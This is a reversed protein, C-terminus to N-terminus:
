RFSQEQSGLKVLIRELKASLVGESFSPVSLMQEDVIEEESFVAAKSHTARWRVFMTASVTDGTWLVRHLLNQSMAYTSGPTLRFMFDSALRSRGVVKLDYKESVDDRPVYEYRFMLEGGGQESYTEVSAGGLLVTSRFLWRHNHIFEERQRKRKEPWWIHLRLKFEPKASSILTIKDFGNSHVYSRKAVERLKEKNELLERIIRSACDMNLIDTLRSDNYISVSDPEKKSIEKLSEEIESIVGSM